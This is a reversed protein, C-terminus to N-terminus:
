DVNPNDYPITKKSEWMDGRPVSTPVILRVKAGRAMETEGGKTRFEYREPEDEVLRECARRITEADFHTAAALSEEDFYGRGVFRAIYRAVDGIPEALAEDVDGMCDSVYTELWVHKEKFEKLAPAIREWDARAEEIKPDGMTPEPKPKRRREALVCRLQSPTWEKEAAEILVAEREASKLGLQSTIAFHTWALNELQNSFQYCERFTKAYLYVTSDKEGTLQAFAKFTGKGHKIELSAAIAGLRFQKVTIEQREQIWASVHDELTDGHFRPLVRAIARMVTDAGGGSGSVMLEGAGERETVMVSM